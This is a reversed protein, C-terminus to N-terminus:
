KLETIMRELDCGNMIILSQVRSLVHAIAANGFCRCYAGKGTESLTKGQVEHLRTM